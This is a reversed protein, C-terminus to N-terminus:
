RDLQSPFRVLRTLAPKVRGFALRLSRTKAGVLALLLRMKFIAVVDIVVKVLGGEVHRGSQRLGSFLIDSVGDAGRDAVVM